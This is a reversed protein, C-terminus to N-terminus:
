FSRIPIVSVYYPASKINSFWQLDAKGFRISHFTKNDIQSSSAYPHNTPFSTYPMSQLSERNKHIEQLEDKTPLYWDDYGNVVLNQCYSAAYNLGPCSKSINLTNLKGDGLLTSNANPIFVDYCGWYKNEIRTNAFVLGHWVNPDYGVDGSKLIYFVVGGYNLSGIAPRNPPSVPNTPVSVSDNKKCGYLCVLLLILYLNKM